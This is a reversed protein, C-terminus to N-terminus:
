QGGLSLSLRLPQSAPQDETNVTKPQVVDQLAAYALRSHHHEGIRQRHTQCAQTQNIAQDAASQTLVGDHEDLLQRVQPALEPCMAVGAVLKDVLQASAPAQADQWLAQAAFAGSLLAATATWRLTRTLMIM